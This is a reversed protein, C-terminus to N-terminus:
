ENNVIPELSKLVKNLNEIISDLKFKSSDMFFLDRKLSLLSIHKELVEKVENQKTNNNNKVWDMLLSVSHTYMSIAFREDKRKLIITGANHYAISARWLCTLANLLTKQKLEIIIETSPLESLGKTGALFLEAAKEFDEWKTLANAYQLQIPILDSVPANSEALCQISYDYSNIAISFQNNQEEIKGKEFSILGLLRNEGLNTDQDKLLTIAQSLLEYAKETGRITRVGDYISKSASIYDGAEIFLSIAEELLNGGSEKDGLSFFANVALILSTAAKYSNNETLQLLRAAEVRHEASKQILEHAEIPNLERKKEAQFMLKSAFTSLYEAAIQKDIKEALKVAKNFCVNAEEYRSQEHFVIGMDYNLSAIMSPDKIRQTAAQILEISKEYSSQLEGAYYACRGALYSVEAAEDFLQVRTFADIAKEFAEGAERFSNGALFIQGVLEYAYGAVKDDVSELRNAVRLATWLQNKDKHNEWAKKATEFDQIARPIAYDSDVDISFADVKEEEYPTDFSNVMKKWIRQASFRGRKEKLINLYEFLNNDLHFNLMEGTTQDVLIALFFPCENGRLSRDIWSDFAVRATIGQGLSLLPVSFEIRQSHGHQGFITVSALYIQLAVSEPDNM